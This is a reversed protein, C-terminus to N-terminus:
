AVGRPWYHSVAPDDPHVVVGDCRLPGTLLDYSPQSILDRVVLAAAALGVTSYTITASSGLPAPHARLAASFAAVRNGVGAASTARAVKGGTESLRVARQAPLERDLLDAVAQGNPGFAQYAPLEELVRLSLCARKNRYPGRTRWPSIPEVLFLRCPWLFGTCDGAAVSVSFYSSALGVESHAGWEARPHTLTEGNALAAAYDVTGSYFDTGDPQTAKYYRM